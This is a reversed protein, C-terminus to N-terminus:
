ATGGSIDPVSVHTWSKGNLVSRITTPDVGTRRAIDSTRMGSHRMKWVDVVVAETLRSSGCRSGRATRGHRDRDANNEKAFGWSLNEIRNDLKNGNGHMAHASPGPCPPGHCILVLRHVGTKLKRCNNSLHVKAYGDETMFPKMVRWRDTRYGHNTRCSQVIGDDSVRYGPWDPVEAWKREREM